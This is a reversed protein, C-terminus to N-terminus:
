NSEDNSKGEMEELENNIMDSKEGNEISMDIDTDIESFVENDSLSQRVENETVVNNTLYIQDRQANKLGVDAKDTDSIDLLPKFIYNISDDIGLIKEVIEDIINYIPVLISQQMSAIKTAYNHMDSDGTSNLGAPSRGLFRTQPIDAAASLIMYYKDFLDPINNFQAELRTYDMTKDLYLTRYISKTDNINGVLKDINPSDPAGALSDQLDEISIIGVSAEQLLYNVSESMSTENNIPSIVRLLESVGWWQNYSARWSNVSLPSIGDIRIVRSYHVTLTNAYKLTFQYFLPKSFNPSTIDRDIELVNADFRDIVIINKLDLLPSDMNLPKSMKRENSVLVLFATGFLRSAKIADKIKNNLDLKTEFDEIQKVQNEDHGIFTRPFIFMDDVPIDIIKAAAWSSVYTYELTTKDEALEDFSFFGSQSKDSICGAGSVPNRFRDKVEIGHYNNKNPKSIINVKKKRFKNFIM